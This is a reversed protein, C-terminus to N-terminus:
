QPAPTPTPTPPPGEGSLLGGLIGLATDVRESGTSNRETVGTIVLGSIVRKRVDIEPEALTGKIDMLPPLMIKNEVLRDERYIRVRRAINTSVGLTVPLAGVDSDSVDRTNFPLVGNSILRFEANEARFEELQLTENELAARLTIQEIPPDLLQEPPIALASALNRIIKELLEQTELIGDPSGDVPAFLRINGQTLDLHIKGNLSGLVQPTTMGSGTFSTELDLMGRIAGPTQVLFADFVPQLNLDSIQLVSDVSPIENLWSVSSSTSIGAKGINLSAPHIVISTPGAAVHLNVDDFRIQDVLLSQLDLTFSSPGIPLPKLSAPEQSPPEEAPVDGATSPRLSLWPTLDISDGEAILEMQPASPDKWEASGRLNLKNEANGSRPWEIRASRILLSTPGSEGVLNLSLPSLPAAHERDTFAANLNFRNAGEQNRSIRGRASLTGPRPLPSSTLSGVLDTNASFEQLTLDAAGTTFSASGAASVSLLTNGSEQLSASLGNLTVEELSGEAEAKMNISARTLPLPGLTGSVGRTQLDLTGKLREGNGSVVVESQISVSEAQIPFLASFPLNVTSTGPVRLSLSTDSLQPPSASLDVQTPAKLTFTLIETQEQTIRADLTELQLLKREADYALDPSLHMSFAPVDEGMAVVDLNLNGRISVPMLDANLAYVGELSVSGLQPDSEPDASELLIRSSLILSGETEPAVRSIDVNLGSLTITQEPHTIRVTGNQLTLQRLEFPVPESQEPSPSVDSGAPPEDQLTLNVVPDVAVLTDLFYQGKLLDSWFFRVDISRAQFSSDPSFGEVSITEVAIGGRSLRVADAQIQIGTKGSVYPLIVGTIFFSRTLLWAAGALLGVGILLFTFTRSKKSAM